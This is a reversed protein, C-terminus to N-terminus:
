KGINNVIARYPNKYLIEDGDETIGSVMVGRGRVRTVKLNNKLITSNLSGSRVRSFTMAEEMAQMAQEHVAETWEDFCIRLTGVSQCGRHKGLETEFDVYLIGTTLDLTGGEDEPEAVMVEEAQNVNLEVEAM